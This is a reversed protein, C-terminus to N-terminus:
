HKSNDKEESTDGEDIEQCRPGYHALDFRRKVPDHYRERNDTQRTHSVAIEDFRMPEDGSMDFNVAWLDRRALTRNSDRVKRIEVALGTRTEFAPQDFGDRGLM